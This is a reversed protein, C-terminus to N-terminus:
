PDRGTLSESAPPYNLVFSSTFVQIVSYSLVFDVIYEGAIKDTRFKLNISFLIIKYHETNVYNVCYKTNVFYGKILYKM